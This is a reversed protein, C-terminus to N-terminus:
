RARRAKLSGYMAATSVSFGMSGLLYTTATTANLVQIPGVNLVNSSGGNLGATGLALETLAGTTFAPLASTTSNLGGEIVTVVTAAQVVTVVQGWVNWDGGSLSLSIISTAVGNSLTIASASPLATSIFEGINGASAATAATAGPIQGITATGAPGIAVGGSLAVTPNPYTGTLDGGAPSGSFLSNSNTGTPDAAEAPGVFWWPLFGLGFMSRRTSSM